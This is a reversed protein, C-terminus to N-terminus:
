TGQELLPRSRAARSNWHQVEAVPRGGTLHQWSRGSLVDKVASPPLGLRKAIRRYGHNTAKCEEIAAVVQERTMKATGAREGRRPVMKFREVAQRVNEAPTAAELHLPNICRPNDCLHAIHHGDPIPGKAIHYAVRHAAHMEGGARVSGYRKHGIMSWCVQESLGTVVRAALVKCVRAIEADDLVIPRFKRPPPAVWGKPRTM